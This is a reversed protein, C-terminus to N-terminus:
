LQEELKFSHSSRARAPDVCRVKKREALGLRGSERSHIETSRSMAALAFDVVISTGPLGNPVKLSYRDPASIAARYGAEALTRTLGVSVPMNKRKM